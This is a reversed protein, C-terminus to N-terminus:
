KRKLETRRTNNSSNDYWLGFLTWSAAIADGIAILMLNHPVKDTMVFYVMFLAGAYRMIVSLKFYVVHTQQVMVFYNVALTALLVGTLRVFTDDDTPLGLSETIKQPFLTFGIGGVALMYGAFLLLSIKTQTYTQLDFLGTSPM